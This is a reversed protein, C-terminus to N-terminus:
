IENFFIIERYKQFYFNNNAITLEKLTGAESKLSKKKKPDIIAVYPFIDPFEKTYFVESAQKQDDTYYVDFVEQYNKLVDKFEGIYRSM